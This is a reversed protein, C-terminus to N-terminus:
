LAFQATAHQLRQAMTAVANASSSSASAADASAHIMQAVRETHRAIQEAAQRQEDLAEVIENAALMSHQCSAEIEGIALDARGALEAGRQAREATAAVASATQQATQDLRSVLKEIKATTEATHSALKRVEDAVVAFGRGADGARAAEIAANLSLLNTQESIGKIEQAFRTIEQTHEQLSGMAGAAAHAQGSIAGIERIAEQIVAGSESAKNRTDRSADAANGASDAMTAIAVTLEEIGATIQAAADSQTSSANAVADASSSLASANGATQEAGHQVEAILSRLREQMANVSAVLSDAALKGHRPDLDLSASLDGAAVRRTAAVVPELDGGLRHLIRRGILAAVLLSAMVGLAGAGILWRSIESFRAAAIESAAGVSRTSRAAIERSAQSAAQLLPQESGRLAADVMLAYKPMGAENDNLVEDYLKHLSAAEQELQPALAKESRGRELGALTEVAQQLTRRAASFEDRAKEFEDPMHNRILMDKLARVESQAAHRASNVQEQLRTSHEVAEAVQRIDDRFAALALLAIVLLVLSFVASSAAM